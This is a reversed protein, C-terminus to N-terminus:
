GKIFDMVCNELESIKLPDSEKADYSLLAEIDPHLSFSFSNKIEEIADKDRFNQKSPEIAELVSPSFKTWEATSYMVCKKGDADYAKVCLATHPDMLYGNKAYKAIIEKSYTDDASVAEFDGQLVALEADTLKYCRDKALEDMLEKTRLSGFKDFLIREINSSILIDMAPSITKVLERCTLDYSGNTLLETLINNANSAIKIRDIPLGMRKAYYAGLANGFNGSPVIVDIKEGIKIENKALLQLYAYFHYITQFAIRGFNVSNAASVKYDLAALKAQFDSSALLSKLASQADDFTGDIGVVKLNGGNLALMQLRQIDSTGGEPYLCVVKVNDANQLSKLAAPGTDGSTATMVLYKQNQEKALDGFISGFPQLAMDKFARTPGHYLECVFLNNEIKVVPASDTSDYSNYRDLAKKLSDEKIDMEFLSFIDFALQKYSKDKASLLFDADITPLHLPSYLGGYSASPNLIAYSFTVEVPKKGDNGRTEIFRM